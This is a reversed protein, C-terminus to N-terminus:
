APAIRVWYRTLRIIRVPLARTVAALARDTDDLPFTGSLRLAAVAPDCSLLGPRHRALTAAFEGLPMDDALLLGQTWADAGATLPSVASLGQADLRLRHGAHVVPLRQGQPAARRHRVQVAGELVGLDVYAAEHRVMFRTGIPQLEGVPTDVVFPRQLADPATAVLIEGQRLGIRREREGFHVDIATATNLLVRTGDALVFSRREGTATQYRSAPDRWPGQQWALWGSTGVLGVTAVGRLVRRRAGGRPRDLAAMGAQPALGDFRQSVAEVQAWAREHAADSRRWALWARRDAEGMDGASWRAFWEAAAGAVEPEIAGQGTVQPRDAKM